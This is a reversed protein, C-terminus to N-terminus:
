DVVTLSGFGNITNNPSSYSSPIVSRRLAGVACGVDKEKSETKKTKKGEKNVHVAL